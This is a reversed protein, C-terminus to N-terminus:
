IILNRAEAFKSQNSFGLSANEKSISAHQQHTDISINNNSDTLCASTSPHAYQNSNSSLKRKVSSTQNLQTQNSNFNFNAANNNAASFSGPAGTQNGNVAVYQQAAFNLINQISYGNPLANNSNLNEGILGDSGTQQMLNYCSPSMYSSTSSSSSSVPSSTTTSSLSTSSM